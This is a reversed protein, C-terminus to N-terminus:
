IIRKNKLKMLLKQSYIFLKIANDKNYTKNNICIAKEIIRLYNKVIKREYEGKMIM